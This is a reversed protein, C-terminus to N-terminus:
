NAKYNDLLYVTDIYELAELTAEAAYDEGFIFTIVFYAYPTIYFSPIYRYTAGDDGEMTYTFYPTSGRRNIESLNDLGEAHELYYEAWKDQNMTIPIGANLCAAFSFRLMGVIMTGDSYAVDYAKGIEYKEFSDPLLIGLECHQYRPACSVLSFVLAIVLLVSALTHLRKIM